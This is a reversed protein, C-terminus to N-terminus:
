FPPNKWLLIVRRLGVITPGVLVACLFISQKDSHLRDLHWGAKSAIGIFPYLVVLTGAIIGATAFQARQRSINGSSSLLKAIGVLGWAGCASIVFSLPSVIGFILGFVLLPGVVFAPVLLGFFIELGAILRPITAPGYKEPNM